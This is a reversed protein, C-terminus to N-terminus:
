NISFEITEKDKNHTSEIKEVCKKIKNDWVCFYNNSCLMVDSMVECNNMIVSPKVNFNKEYHTDFKSFFSTTRTIPHAKAKPRELVDFISVIPAKEILNQKVKICNINHIIILFLFVFCFKANITLFKM